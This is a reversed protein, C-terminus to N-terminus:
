LKNVYHFLVNIPVKREFIKRRRESKSKGFPGFVIRGSGSTALERDKVFERFAESPRGHTLYYYIDLNDVFAELALQEASFHPYDFQTDPTGFIKDLKLRTSRSLLESLSADGHFTLMDRPRVARRSSGAYFARRPFLAGHLMPYRKLADLLVRKEVFKANSPDLSSLESLNLSPSLALTAFAMLPRGAKIM